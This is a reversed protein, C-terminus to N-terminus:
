ISQHIKKIEKKDMENIITDKRCISNNKNLKIIKQIKEIEDLELKTLLPKIKNTDSIFYNFFVELLISLNEISNINGFFRKFLTKLKFNNLAISFKSLIKSYVIEQHKLYQYKELNKLNQAIALTTNYGMYDTVEYLHERYLKGDLIDGYAIAEYNSELNELKISDNGKFNQYNTLLNEHIIQNLVVTYEDFIRIIDKEQLNETIIKLCSDFLNSHINKKDQTDLFKEINLSNNKFYFELLGLLKRIDHQSFDVIKFIVDDSLEKGENKCIKVILDYLESKKPKLFKIVECEKKLDNIKKDFDENSICIIPNNYVVPKRKNKRLGKNPNIFSILESMGGKDGSSMGDVEDMIIGNFRTGGMMSTISVKGIINKFHEKVLKQNRIDSANFEITDFNFEKLLNKALTTKGIGPTGIILLATPTGPTKSKFNKIWNKAKIVQNKNGVLDKLTKPSYKDVLLNVEYKEKVEINKTIPKNKLLCDICEYLITEKDCNVCTGKLSSNM